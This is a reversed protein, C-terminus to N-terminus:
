KIRALYAKTLRKQDSSQKKLSKLLERFGQKDCGEALIKGSDDTMVIDKVYTGFINCGDATAPGLAYKTLAVKFSEEDDVPSLNYCRDAFAPVVTYLSYPWHKQVDWACTEAGLIQHAKDKADAPFKTLDWAKIKDWTLYEPLDIYTMPYDANILEFGEEVFRQMSCGERPGRHEGAVRWFEILIDRPLEPSKAIDINDNWMIMKKGLSSVIDYIRTIFYYFKETVTKKGLKKFFRRCHECKEWDQMEFKGGKVKVDRMDIEDTGIHIYEYPFLEALETLIAKAYDYSAESSACMVWNNAKKKTKCSLKPYAAILSNSHGPMDVEPIVDIAFLAAYEILSRVEDKTYKRGAKDPSKINPYSEFEIPCGQGDTIHWHLKTMKARAVMLIQDRFEEITIYRRGTDLMYSRFSKDPYDSIEANQIYFEGNKLSVLQSLTAAANVLGRYDKASVSIKADKVSLTYFEAKDSIAPRLEFIFDAKEKKATEKFKAYPMFEPLVLALKKSVADAFYIKVPFDIKCLEGYFESKVRPIIM